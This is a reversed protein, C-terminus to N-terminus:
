LNFTLNVIRGNKNFEIKDSLREMLFIGRGNVKEVNDPATPDPINHYDFGKGQDIVTLNLEKKSWQFKINVDKEEDLKNGHLIANNAAEITAIFVNGYKESSLQCENTVEDILKEVERLNEIRSPINIERKM